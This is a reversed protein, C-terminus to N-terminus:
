KNKSQKVQTYQKYVQKQLNEVQERWYSQLENADQIREKNCTDLKAEMVFINNNYRDAALIIAADKEKLQENQKYIIVGLTSLILAALISLWGKLSLGAIFKGGDLIEGM